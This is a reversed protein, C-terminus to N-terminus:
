VGYRLKKRKLIQELYPIYKEPGDYRELAKEKYRIESKHGIISMQDNSPNHICDHIGTNCAQYNWKMELLEKPINGNIESHFFCHHLSYGQPNLVGDRECVEMRIEQSIM